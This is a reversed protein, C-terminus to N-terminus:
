QAEGAKKAEREATTQAYGNRMTAPPNWNEPKNELLRVFEAREENKRQIEAELIEVDTPMPDSRPTNTLTRVQERLGDHRTDRYVAPGAGAPLTIHHDAVSQLVPRQYVRLGAGTEVAPVDLPPAPAETVAREGALTQMHCVVRGDVPYPLMSLAASDVV